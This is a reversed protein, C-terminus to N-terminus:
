PDRQDGPYGLGRHGRLLRLPAPPPDHDAEPEQDHEERARARDEGEGALAVHGVGLDLEAVLRGDGGRGLLLRLLRGRAPLPPRVGRVPEDPREVAVRAVPAAEQRRGLREARREPLRPLVLAGHQELERRHDAPAPQVQEVVRADQARDVLARALHAPPALEAVEGGGGRGVGVAGHVGRDELPGPAPAAALGAPDRREVGLGPLDLPRAVERAARSDEGSIAPSVSYKPASFLRM